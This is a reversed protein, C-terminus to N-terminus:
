LSIEQSTDTSKKLAAKCVIKTDIIIQMANGERQLATTVWKLKIVETKTMQALLSFNNGQPQM